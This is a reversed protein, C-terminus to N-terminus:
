PQIQKSLQNLLLRPARWAELKLGKQDEKDKVGQPREPRTVWAPLLEYTIIIIFVLVTKTM